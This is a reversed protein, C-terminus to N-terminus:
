DGDIIKLSILTKGSYAGDIVLAEILKRRFNTEIIDKINNSKFISYVDLRYKKSNNQNIFYHVRNLYSIYDNEDWDRNSNSPGTFTNLAPSYNIKSQIALCEDVDIIIKSLDKQPELMQSIVSIIVPIEPYLRKSM